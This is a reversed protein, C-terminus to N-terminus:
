SVPYLELLRDIMLFTSSWRTDVDRLLNVNRIELGEGQNLDHITSQLSDRRKDSARIAVVLKRVASVPDTELVKEQVDPFLIHSDNLTDIPIRTIAKLGHKM